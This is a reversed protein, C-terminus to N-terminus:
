WASDFLDVWYAVAPENWVYFCTVCSGLQASSTLGTHMLLNMEFM